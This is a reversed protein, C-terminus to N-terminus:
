AEGVLHIFEDEYSPQTMQAEFEGKTGNFFLRGRHIIAIDDCLLQVEGMLHTSFLVTKGQDRCSRILDVIARSTMVDLGSTPEDFVVVDPDHIITRAISVKQRMGTSLQAIRRTAFADMDLAQFVERRRAEFQTADLGHLTAFYKVMETATLRDYLGTNGTLFGIRERVRQPEAVGDVGDVWFGGDTPKLMTAIMRLATTKGAGNPGLLGFVRGPRCEFSIRDVARVKGNVLVDPDLEKRLKKTGPFHKSLEAVKIM